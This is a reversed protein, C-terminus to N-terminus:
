APQTAYISAESSPYADYVHEYVADCAEQFAEADYSDPLQEDLTREITARVGARAQQKRRWDLSLKERKLTDLLDRAIYKVQTREEGSLGARTDLLLDYVALTEESVGERGPREEEEQLEEMFGLLDDFFAEVNKSGMNYAEIMEEFKELYDMRTRNRRVMSQVKQNLRGRLKEAEIRKRGREFEERLAEFDIQSLDILGDPREQASGEHPVSPDSTASANDEGPEHIVYSEAAVSDDLLQEISQRVGSIDVDPRLSHIREALVSFLKRGPGLEGAAPDPLVAKFLKDVHRAHALYRERSEEGEDDDTGELIAEVADEIAQVRGLGEAQQVAEVQVGRAELFAKTEAIADRLEDLLESKDQIPTEGEGEDDESGSGDDAGTAYISLAKKLNRFIGAYDVIIGREKEGFTRNARAITQMLTHNRMPRDLYITACSPVDFGTRWMACVFAIRFPDGPDKFKEDLDETEMRRRHPRIDLGKEALDGVENQAQSVVVAMDTEEMYRLQEELADTADGSAERAAIQDRLRDMKANWHRQVANYTRLTTAKDISVVMAKGQYGRGLFHDAIDEGIKDIRDERTILHYERGLERELKEEERDSLDAAEIADAIDENLQDNTLQLEPIRNEYHLKVTSGDEISQQFDYVSVYEGFVERTKEEEAMLPTGTFALFAANPLAERMNQALVDYQTRHAEDVMVILDDRESLVPHREGRETRFKHILTFVYRHDERLLERLHASSEAQVGDETVTGTAAFTKYIQDDLDQRDTIVVFSWNGPRKRLVKRSFFAMSFSKGSGQTHWFVGLRGHNDEISRVADVANNVGLYQHSKAVIKHTGGRAEEFLVFNETLDLLRGPACTARLLRELSVVREEDEREIRKWTGFHEWDATVSGAVSESGNSLLTLANYHLLRPIADKYDRLNDDYADRARRQPAKFEALLLPLGNVFGVLDPRRTHMEGTVWLQRVALFDNGERPERWDIVQVTRTVEGEGPEQYTVSVGGRLLDYIEQNAQVLSLTGTRDRTLEDETLRLAEDPLDPNLDRLASRLRPRLVVESRTERGLTGEEGFDEHFANVTAWGLEDLLAAAPKEVLTEETYDDSSPPM